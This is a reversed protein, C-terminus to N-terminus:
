TGGRQFARLSMHAFCKQHGGDEVVFVTDGKRSNVTGKTLSRLRCFWPEFCTCGANGSERAKAETGGWCEHLMHPLLDLFM